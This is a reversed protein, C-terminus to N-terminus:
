KWTKDIIKLFLCCQSSWISSFAPSGWRFPHSFINGGVSMFHLYFYFYLSVLMHMKCSYIGNIFIKQSPHGALLLPPGLNWSYDCPLRVISFVMPSQLSRVLLSDLWMSHCVQCVNKIQLETHTIRFAVEGSNCTRTLNSPDKELTILLSWEKCRAIFTFCWM